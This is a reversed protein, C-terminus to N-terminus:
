LNLKVFPVLKVEGVLGNDSRPPPTPSLENLMPAADSNKIEGFISRIYNWMTTPVIITIKNQGVRLYSTIDAKPAAIDLPPVQHGNLYLRAAHKIPPLVLYAGDANGTSKSPPWSFSNSYYGLGSSNNLGEIQTWSVLSRLSHTTNHKAAIIAADSMNQPAEWHEAILTWNSLKTASAVGSPVEVHKGNSLGLAKSKQSASIHLVTGGNSKSDGGLVASSTETVHVKHGSDTKFGIIVTQNGALELPIIVTDDKRQYSLLPKEDGTWPDLLFPTKTSLITVSGISANTDCFVYAHDMGHVSDERWTTYWTGNTQVGVRPSLGLSQLKKTVQGSAVSYVNKSLKLTTIAKKVSAKDSNDRTAYVGPDGGSLIVPFGARAYKRLYQAGELTLNSNATVIIAKYQPGKPGFKGNKITAEPLAFNDPSLYTYSYGSQILDDSSYLTPFNPNTASVKNYIAVDTRPIGSQQLYQVRAIYNLVDGFGHDWSPQKNSYSDSFLYSFATYGPWTTGYYNGTYSQGHLVVQNVGGVVARNVSFLLESHPFNYSEYMVAGMENSIVRKGSLHAPGAFQRYGDINNGFQLSECEPANVFPINAEMDMPLNYSVQASMQLELKSTIWKTLEKLYNRYGEVLAGRFDNIYGLGQEPTNLQCQIYGPTSSQTNINNDGYMILPLFPKLDYGYKSKFVTPLSPTWSITSLIEISDEWGYNGVEKLLETTESDLLHTEWFKTITQAGRASYHDVIFSGNATIDKTSSDTYELNKSYTQLQYFAFLRNSNATPLNLSVHGTSSVRETWEMLSGSKLTLELYWTQATGFLSVGSSALTHNKSTLVEASILAVLEGTGWGPIVGDFRGSSPVVVSSSQLDWLLGEDDPDAPVGQGQNPGMPFDMALGAEKHAKLAAVFLKKYPETGFGYKSWDADAPEGGVAGGYNYFPLFEVGGGGIEGTSKINEQVIDADVSADPLWYRFRPRLRAAPNKFSGRDVPANTQDNTDAIAPQVFLLAGLFPVLPMWM